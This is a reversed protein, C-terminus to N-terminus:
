MMEVYRCAMSCAVRYAVVIRQPPPGPVDTSNDAALLLMDCTVHVVAVKLVRPVHWNDDCVFCLRCGKTGGMYLTCNGVTVGFTHSRVSLFADSKSVM